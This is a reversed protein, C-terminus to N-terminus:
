SEVAGDARAAARAILYVAVDLALPWWPRGGDGRQRHAPDGPLGGGAAGDLLGSLAGSTLHERVTANSNLRM